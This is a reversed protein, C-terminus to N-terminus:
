AVSSPFRPARRTWGAELGLSLCHHLCAKCGDATGHTTKEKTAPDEYTVPHDDSAGKLRAYFNNQVWFEGIASGARALGLLAAFVAPRHTM